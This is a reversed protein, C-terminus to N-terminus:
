SQVPVNLASYTVDSYRGVGVNSTQSALSSMNDKRRKEQERGEDLRRAKKREGTIKVDGQTHTMLPSERPRPTVRPIDLPKPPRALSM